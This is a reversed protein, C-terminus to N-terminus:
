KGLLADKIKKEREAAVMAKKLASNSANKRGAKQVKNFLEDEDVEDDDDNPTPFPSGVDTMVLFSPLKSPPTDDMIRSPLRSPVTVTPSAANTVALLLKEPIDHIAHHNHHFPSVESHSSPSPLSRSTSKPSKPSKLGPTAPTNARSTHKSKNNKEEENEIAAMEDMLSEVQGELKRIIDSIKNRNTVDSPKELSIGLIKGIHIMGNLSQDVLGEYLEAYESKKKVKKEAVHIAEEKKVDKVTGGVLRSEYRSEELEKEVSERLNRLGKLRKESYLEMRTMDTALNTANEFRQFFLDFNQIGTRSTIVNLALKIDMEHESGDPMALRFSNSRERMGTSAGFDSGLSMNGHVHVSMGIDTTGDADITLNPKEGKNRKPSKGTSNGTGTKDGKSKRTEMGAATGDLTEGRAIAANQQGQVTLQKKQDYRLQLLNERMKGGEKALDKYEKYAVKHSQLEFHQEFLRKRIESLLYADQDIKQEVEFVLAPSHAPHRTCIRDINKLNNCVRLAQEKSNRANQEKSISSHFDDDFMGMSDGVMQLTRLSGSLEYVKAKMVLSQKHLFDYEERYSQISDQLSIMRQEIQNSSDESEEKPKKSFSRAAKRNFKIDPLKFNKSKVKVSPSDPMAFVFGSDGKGKTPSMSTMTAGSKLYNAQKKENDELGITFRSDVNGLAILPFQIWLWRTFYYTTRIPLDDIPKSAAVNMQKQATPDDENADLNERLQPFISPCDLITRGEENVFLAPVGLSKLEKYPVVPHISQPIDIRHEYGDLAFELMFDAIELSITAMQEASPHYKAYYADLSKVYEEVIDYVPVHKIVDSTGAGGTDPSNDSSGTLLYMWFKLFDKKFPATWWLRFMDIDTLCNRVKQSAGSEELHYPLCILKRECVPLKAFYDSMTQHWVLLSTKSAIYKDYVVQSYVEHSFNFKGNINVTFNSVIKMILAKLPPEAHIRSVAFVLDWMEIDTLGDRSAYILSLITMLVEARARNDSTVTSSKVDINPTPHTSCYDWIVRYYLTLAKDVVAASSPCSLFLEFLEDHNTNNHDIDIFLRYMTLFCRLYLPSVAAFSTCLKFQNSEPIMLEEGSQSSTTSELFKHVIGTRCHVNLAEMLIVPYGRRVLEFYTKFTMDKMDDRSVKSMADSDVLEDLRVDNNSGTATGTITDDTTMDDKKKKRRINTDDDDSPSPSVTSIIFRVNAPLSTPLWHLSGPPARSTTLNNVGDVVVTIRSNPEKKSAAEFFRNICWALKEETDPVMMERLNFSSKLATVLRCLMVQLEMSAPSFGVFHYFLFDQKQLHHKRHLVWNSLLASKGSGEPGAIVLPPRVELDSTEAQQDLAAFM